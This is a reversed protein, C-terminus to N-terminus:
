RSVSTPSLGCATFITLCQDYGEREECPTFALALHTPQHTSVFQKSPSPGVSAMISPSMSPPTSASLEDSPKDTLRHTPANTVVITDPKMLSVSVAVAIALATLASCFVAFMIRTHGQRWWPLIPEADVLVPGELEEVLTAEILAPEGGGTSTQRGANLNQRHSSVRNFLTINALTRRQNASRGINPSRCDGDSEIEERTPLVISDDGLDAAVNYDEAGFPVSSDGSATVKKEDESFGLTPTDNPEAADDIIEPKGPLKKKKRTDDTAIEDMLPSPVPLLPGVVDSTVELRDQLPGAEGVGDDVATEGSVPPHVTKTTM